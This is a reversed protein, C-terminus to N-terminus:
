KLTEVLAKLDCSRFARTTFLQRPMLFRKVRKANVLCVNPLNFAMYLVNHHVFNM